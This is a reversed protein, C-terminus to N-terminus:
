GIANWYSYPARLRAYVDSADLQRPLVKTM